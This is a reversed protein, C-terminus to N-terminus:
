HRILWILILGAIASVLGVSRLLQDSSAKASEMARRMWGPFGALAIGELMLLLGIGIVFDRWGVVRV